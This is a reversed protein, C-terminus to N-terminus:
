LEIDVLGDDDLRLSLEWGVDARKLLDSLLHLASIEVDIVGGLLNLELLKTKLAAIKAEAKLTTVEAKITARSALEAWTGAEAISSAQRLNVAGDTLTRLDTTARWGVAVAIATWSNGALRLDASGLSLRAARDCVTSDCLLCITLARAILAVGVRHAAELGGVGHPSRNGGLSAENGLSRGVLEDVGSLGDLCVAEDSLTNLSYGEAARM